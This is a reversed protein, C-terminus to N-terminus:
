LGHDNLRSTVNTLTASGNWYVYVGSGSETVTVDNLTATSDGAIRIGDVAYTISASKVTATASGGLAIGAWDGPAPSESDSTFTVPDGATPNVDLHGTVSLTTGVQFRVEVGAEVTLSCVEAVSVDCTVVYPSDAFTWTEDCVAGCKETAAALGPALLVLSFAWAFRLLLRASSKVSRSSYRGARNM